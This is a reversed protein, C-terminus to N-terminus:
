VGRQSTGEPMDLARGRFLQKTNKGQFINQVASAYQFGDSDGTLM